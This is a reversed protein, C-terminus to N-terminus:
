QEADKETNKEEIISGIDTLPYQSFYIVELGRSEIFEKIQKYNSHQSLDGNFIVSNGVKGSAGGLFGYPYGELLIQGADVLLVDLGANITARAIGKDSTIISEEDVVVCNCKSYGQAVHINILGEEKVAMSLSPATIKNNHIFYKGTSCGNYIAHDPYDQKLISPDGHFIKRGLHCIYIDPHCQIAEDISAKAKIEEVIHGQNKLYDKLIKNANKSVYIKSMAVVNYM